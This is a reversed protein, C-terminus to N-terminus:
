PRIVMIDAKLYDLVGQATNGVMAEALRSKSVVGMVIIDAHLQKMLNVLAFVPKEKSLHVNSSDIDYNAMFADLAKQHKAVISEPSSFTHAGASCAHVIHLEGKLESKTTEAIRVIKDDLNLSKHNKHMPDVGAMLIPKSPWARDKVLLLPRKCNRVLQWSDQSM